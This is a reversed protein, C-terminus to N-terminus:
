VLIGLLPALCEKGAPCILLCLSPDLMTTPGASVSNLPQWLRLSVQCPPLGPGELLLMHLPPPGGPQWGSLASPLSCPGASSGCFTSWSCCGGPVGPACLTALSVLQHEWCTRRGYVSAAM